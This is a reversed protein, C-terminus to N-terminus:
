GARVTHGDRWYIRARLWSELGMLEYWVVADRGGVAPLAAGAARELQASDVVGLEGLLRAGGLNRWASEGDRRAFFQWLPLGSVRRLWDDAFALRPRVVERALAKMKGGQVLLEPPLRHLFAVVESDWLPAANPLRTRIATMFREETAVSVSSSELVDSRARDYLSWPPVPMAAAVTADVVAERLLRDPALWSPLQAQRRLRHQRAFYAPFARAALTAAAARGLQRLGWTWLVARLASRRDAGPTYASSYSAWLRTLATVDLHLLRDSVWLPHPALCENGGDGSLAVRYGRERAAMALQTYGPQLLGPSHATSPALDLASQLLRGGGVEELSVSLVPMGLARAVRQQTASEDSEGAPEALCLAAPSQLGRRHSVACAVAAVAASDLGGSLFVGAPGDGLSREVARTLLREFEEAADEFSGAWPSAPAPWYRALSQSTGRLRLVSGAPVRRICSFHTQEPRAPQLLLHRAAVVRDVDRSVQPDSLLVDISPALLVDQAQAVFLPHVGVPDRICALEGARADWVIAAFAGHADEFGRPGLTRYLLLALEADSRPPAGGHRLRSALATRNRIAGAVIATCSGSTAVSPAHPGARELRLSPRREARDLRAIWMHPGPAQMPLAM